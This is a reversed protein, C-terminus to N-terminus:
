LWNSRKNPQLSSQRQKDRVLELSFAQYWNPAMTGDSSICQRNKCKRILNWAIHFFPTKANHITAIPIYLKDSAHLDIPRTKKEVNLTFRSWNILIWESHSFSMKYIYLNCQHCILILQVCKMCYHADDVWWHLRKCVRFSVFGTTSPFMVILQFSINVFIGVAFLDCGFVDFGVIPSIFDFQKTHHSTIHTRPNLLWM